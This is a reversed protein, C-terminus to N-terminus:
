SWSPSRTPTAAAPAARRPQPAPVRVAAVDGAPAPAPTPRSRARLTPAAPRPAAPRRPGCRDRGRGLRPLVDAGAQARLRSLDAEFQERTWSALTPSSSSARCAWRARARRLSQDLSETMMLVPPRLNMKWLRKVVEFGGHFSAGGSTPMGLDTVLVFPRARRRAAPRGDEDGLRPRVGGRRPLRRRRLPRRPHAARRGRRRRPPHTRSRRRASPPRRRADVRARRARRDRGARRSPVAPRPPARRPPPRPRSPPALGGPSTPTPITPGALADRAFAAAPVIPEEDVVGEEPAAFSAEVAASSNRATRTSARARARAAAGAPQHRGRADRAPHRAARRDAPMTETLSSASRGRACAPSSSSPSSSGPRAGRADRADRPLAALRPDAPPSGATFAAVVLGDRFVIAGDGGEMEISLYGTKRSFSVIQLIDLLPLDELNGQLGLSRTRGRGSRVGRGPDRRGRPRAAGGPRRRRGRRAAKPMGYIM